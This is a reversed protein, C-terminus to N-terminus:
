GGVVGLVKPLLTGREEFVFGTKGPPLGVQPRAQGWFM